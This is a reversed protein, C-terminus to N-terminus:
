FSNTISNYTIAYKRYKAIEASWQVLILSTLARNKQTKYIVWGSSWWMSISCTPVWPWERCLQIPQIKKEFSSARPECGDKHSWQEPVCCDSASSCSTRSKSFRFFLSFHLPLVSIAGRDSIHFGKMLILSSFLAFIAIKIHLSVCLDM